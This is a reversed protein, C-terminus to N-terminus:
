GFKFANPLLNLRSTLYLLSLRPDENFRVQFARCGLHKMGLGSTMMRRTFPKGYIPIAAVKSM